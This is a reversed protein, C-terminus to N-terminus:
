KGAAKLSKKIDSELASMTSSPSFGTLRLRIIGEPDIVIYTPFAEIQFARHTVRAADLHQPWLMKNADIYDMWVQKNAASDSSIGVMEFSPGAVRKYLNVLGPTADRCPGCWTGWFDLLVTKGALDKSSIFEGGRTTVSFDPAYNERARRPNDIMRAASDLEPAKLGAAMAGNLMELGEPDRSGMRLITVGLNYRTMAGSGPLQLAARFEAEADKLAKDTNKEALSFLAMGRQNRLNSEMVKDDGVLKLADLCSDAENKYAGLGHYARSMGYLAGVSSKGALQHASKFAELAAEWKKARIGAEGQSMADAFKPDSPPSQAAAPLNQTTLCATIILAAPVLVRSTIVTFRAM